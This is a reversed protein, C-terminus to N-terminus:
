EAAAKTIAAELRESLAQLDEEFHHNAGFVEEM